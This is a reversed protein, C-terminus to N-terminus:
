GAILEREIRFRVCNNCQKKFGSMRLQVIALDTSSVGCGKWQMDRENWYQLTFTNMFTIVLSVLCVAPTLRCTYTDIM